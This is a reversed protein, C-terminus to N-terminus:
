RIREGAIARSADGLDIQSTKAVYSVQDSRNALM